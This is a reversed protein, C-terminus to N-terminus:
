ADPGDPTIGAREALRTLEVASRVGVKRLINARHFKITKEVTGLEAAIQKNLRGTLLRRLVERERATLRAFRAEIAGRADRQGRLALDRAFADRIAALLTDGDVPKTLFDVAGRKIARVSAPIDGRGTLFIVPLSHGGEALRQQLDLGSLGPMSLDLVLCGTAERDAQELFAQPSQFAAVPLGAATLLRELAQLVEADDDVLFVTPTPARM